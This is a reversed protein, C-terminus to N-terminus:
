FQICYELQSAAVKLLSEVPKPPSNNYCNQLEALTCCCMKCAALLSPISFNKDGKNRTIKKVHNLLSYAHDIPGFQMNLGKKHMYTWTEVAYDPFVDKLQMHMEGIADVNIADDNVHKMWNWIFRHCDAASDTYEAANGKAAKNDLIDKMAQHKSLRVKKQWNRAKFMSNLDSVVFKQLSMVLHCQWVYVPVEREPCLYPHYLMSHIDVITWSEMLFKRFNKYDERKIREEGMIYDDCACIQVQQIKMNLRFNEYDEFGFPISTFKPSTDVDVLYENKLNSHVIGNLKLELFMRIIHKITKKYSEENALPYSNIEFKEIVVCAIGDVICTGFCRVFHHKPLRNMSEMTKVADEDSSCKIVDYDTM